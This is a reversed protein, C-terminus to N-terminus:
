FLVEGGEKLPWLFVTQWFLQKKKTVLESATFRVVELHPFYPRQLCTAEWSLLRELHKVTCITEETHKNIHIDAKELKLYQMTNWQM